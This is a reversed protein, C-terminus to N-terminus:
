CSQCEKPDEVVNICIECNFHEDFAGDGAFMEASLRREEKAGIFKKQAVAQQRVSLLSDLRAQSVIFKRSEVM